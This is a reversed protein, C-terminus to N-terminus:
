QFGQSLLWRRAEADGAWLAPGLPSGLFILTGRELERRLGVPRDGAWAIIAGEQTDGLPVVRSFDRVKAAHPWTYDIYPVRRPDGKWLDVPSQVDIQLYERLFRRHRRFNLHGAFGGGSEIIVTAGNRLANAIRQMGDLPITLVAPVILLSCHDGGFREAPLASAYGEFSEPLVRPGPLPVVLWRSVARAPAEAAPIHMGWSSLVLAGAGATSSLFQRRSM